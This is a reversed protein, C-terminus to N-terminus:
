EDRTVRAHDTVVRRFLAHGTRGTHRLCWDQAAEQDELAGSKEVCGSTVCFTEFTVGSDPEHRITHRVYRLVARSM